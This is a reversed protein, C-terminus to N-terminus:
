RRNRNRDRSKRGTKKGEGVGKSVNNVITEIIKKLQKIKVIHDNVLRATHDLKPEIESLANSRASLERQREQNEESTSAFKDLEMIAEPVGMNKIVRRVKEAVGEKSRLEKLVNNIRIIDREIDM